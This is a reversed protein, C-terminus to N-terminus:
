IDEVIWRPILFVIDKLFICLQVELSCYFASFAAAKFLKQLLNVYVSPFSAELHSSSNGSTWNFEMMTIHIGHTCKDKVQKDCVRKYLTAFLLSRLSPYWDVTPLIVIMQMFAQFYVVFIVKKLASICYFSYMQENKNM